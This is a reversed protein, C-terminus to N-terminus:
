IPYGDDRRDLMRIQREWQYRLILLVRFTMDAEKRVPSRWDKEVRLLSVWRSNDELLRTSLSWRGEKTQQSQLWELHSMMLPYRNILGLRAFVELNVLLEDVCKKKQYFEVPQLRLGYGKPFSGKSTRILGLDPALQQYTPSVVYDFIKKLRMKAMEGDLLWPSHAFAQAMFFDPLFPYGDRWAEFRILPHSAGIDETPARSVPDDVFGSSAELLELIGSRCKEDLYGARVLLGLAIIRLLWRYYRDLREDAKVAKAFEFFKLDKKATLFPRLTKAAAQVPKTERHWGYEFLKSLVNELSPQFKKPDGAHIRGGWTGDKRQNRQLRVAPAYALMDMRAQQVDPDDRGMDLLETLVRYRIAPCGNEILWPIPDSRLSSRWDTM